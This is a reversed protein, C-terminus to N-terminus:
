EEWEVTITLIKDDPIGEPVLSGHPYFAYRSPLFYYGPLVMKRKVVNSRVGWEDSLLIAAKDVHHRDATFFLVDLASYFLNKAPVSAGRFTIIQDPNAKKWAEILNM